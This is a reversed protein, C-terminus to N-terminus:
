HTMVRLARMKRVRHAIHPPDVLFLKFGEIRDTVAAGVMNAFGADLTEVFGLQVTLHTVFFDFGIGATAHQSYKLACVRDGAFVDHEAEIDLQLLSGFFGKGPTTARHDCEVRQRTFHQGHDALRAEVRVQKHGTDAELSICLQAIRNISRQEVADQATQIRRARGDLGCHRNCAQVAAHDAACRPNIVGAIVLQGIVIV